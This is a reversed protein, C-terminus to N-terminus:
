KHLVISGSAIVTTPDSDDSAGLQNDYVVVNNADWIKIRFKDTGGGGNVQGDIATLLFGYGATGNLTGSGKYQARAGSVVLWQYSTSKFMLNALQFDFQTNGVPLTVGKQYKSVFGFNAPGSLSPAPTYAGPPSSITGGGTVFGSSADYVAVLSPASAKSFINAADGGVVTATISYVGTPLGTITISSSGGAATVTLPGSALAVDALVDRVVYCVVAGTLSRSSTITASATLANGLQVLTGSTNTVTTDAPNLALTTTASSGLYRDNEQSATVGGGLDITGGFSATVSYTGDALSTANTLRARGAFDTIDYSWYTQSGTTARFVVTQDRLTRAGTSTDRLTAILPTCAPAVSLATERKTIMFSLPATSSGLLDSTEDFSARVDYVGPTQLLAISATAM